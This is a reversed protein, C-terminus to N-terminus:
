PTRAAACCLVASQHKCAGRVRCRRCRACRLRAAAAAPACLPQWAANLTNLSRCLSCASSALERRGVVRARAGGASHGGQAGAGRRRPANGALCRTRPPPIPLALAATCRRGDGTARAAAGPQLMCRAAAGRATDAAGHRGCGRRSSASPAAGRRAHTARALRRGGCSNCPASHLRAGGRAAGVASRRAGRDRRGATDRGPRLQRARAASTRRPVAEL